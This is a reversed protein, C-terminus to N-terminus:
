ARDDHARVQASRITLRAQFNLEIADAAPKILTPGSVLVGFGDHSPGGGQTSLYRQRILPSM